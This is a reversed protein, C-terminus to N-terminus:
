GLEICEGGYGMIVGEAGVRVVLYGNVGEQPCASKPASIEFIIWGMPNWAVDGELM